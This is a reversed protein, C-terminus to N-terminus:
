KGKILLKLLTWRSPMKMFPNRIWLSTDSMRYEECTLINYFNLFIQEHVSEDDTKKIDEEITLLIKNIQRSLHHCRKATFTENKTDSNKKQKKHKMFDIVTSM